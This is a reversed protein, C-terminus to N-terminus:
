LKIQGLVPLNFQFKLYKKGKKLFYKGCNKATKSEIHEKVRMLVILSKLPM